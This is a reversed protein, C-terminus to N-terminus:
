IRATNKMKGGLHNNKLRHSCKEILMHTADTHGIAGHLGSQKMEHMHDQAQVNNM